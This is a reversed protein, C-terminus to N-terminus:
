IGIYRLYYEISVYSGADTASDAITITNVGGAVEPDPALHFTTIDSASSLQGIINGSVSSVISNDDGTVITVVETDVIAYMSLDIVEGTGTNEIVLDELPGGIVFVPHCMWTGDYTISFNGIGAVSMNVVTISDPDYFSPDPAIFRITEMVSFEDWSGLQRGRFEPGQEVIVDIARVIGNPLHKELTGLSFGSAQRNPRLMNLINNRTNWYGARNCTNERFMLQIIRSDLRYDYITRGHQLPGGHDIYKIPPMGLGIESILFRDNTDFKFM